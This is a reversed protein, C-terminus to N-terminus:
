FERILSTLSDTLVAEDVRSLQQAQKQWQQQEARYQYHHCCNRFLQLAHTVLSDVQQEGLRTYPRLRRDLWSKELESVEAFEAQLLVSDAQMALWEALHTADQLLQEAIYDVAVQHTNRNYVNSKRRRQGDSWGQKLIADANLFSDDFVLQNPLPFITHRQQLRALLRQAYDDFAQAKERDTAFSYADLMPVEALLHRYLGGIEANYPGANIPNAGGVKLARTQFREQQPNDKSVRQFFRAHFERALGFHQVPTIVVDDGGRLPFFVQKSLRDLSGRDAQRLRQALVAALKDADAQRLGLGQLAVYVAGAKQALVDAMRVREGDLLFETGLFRIEAAWAANGAGGITRTLALSYSSVWPQMTSATDRPLQEFVAGQNVNANPYKLNHTGLASEAVGLLSQLRKEDQLAQKATSEDFLTEFKSAKLFLANILATLYLRLESSAIQLLPADYRTLVDPLNKLDIKVDNFQM